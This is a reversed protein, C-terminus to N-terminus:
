HGMELIIGMAKDPSELLLTAAENANEIPMTHTTLADVVLRGESILQVIERLNRQTTFQIFADPYAKGYEYEPDHYGAGTRSSSLVNINGTNAGGSYTVECGGVLTIRGMQHGDQSVKLSDVVKKFTEGAKGGFAFIAFDNGYPAAFEKSVEVTDDTKFNAFHKIGCKKAMEIRNEFGEWGIIRAGSLQSLQSALNGVIGLGLVMGYEGLKPDTRRVAQLATAGLCAYPAQAFTVNDPIPVVLNIPVCAYTAHCAQGGMAAVRMGVELDRVEGKIEVIEGSLSYGFVDECAEEVAEARRERVRNMETGPSILSAKVKILVENEKLEPVDEERARLIGAENIVAIKRKLM